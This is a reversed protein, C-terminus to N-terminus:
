AAGKEALHRRGADTLTWVKSSHLRGNAGYAIAEDVLKLQMLKVLDINSWPAIIMRQALLELLRTQKATLKM